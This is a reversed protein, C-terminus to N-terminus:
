FPFGSQWKSICEYISEMSDIDWIEQPLREGYKNRFHSKIDQRHYLKFSDIEGGYPYYFGLFDKHGSSIVEEVEPNDKFFLYCDMGTTKKIERYRKVLYVPLGTANHFKMKGFDKADIFISKGNHAALVDLGRIELGDPYIFPESDHYKRVICGHALLIEAIDDVLEQSKDLREDFQTNRYKKQLM